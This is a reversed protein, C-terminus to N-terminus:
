TSSSIPTYAPRGPRDAVGALGPSDTQCFTDDVIRARGPNNESKRAGATLAERNSRMVAVSTVKMGGSLKTLVARILSVDMGGFAVPAVLRCPVVSIKSGRKM